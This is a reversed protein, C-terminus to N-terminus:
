RAAEDVARRNDDLARALGARDFTTFMGGRCLGTVTLGAAKIQRTAAAVGMEQVQDRWPSIGPVGARAIGDIARSLDWQGRLTASNISLFRTDGALDRM